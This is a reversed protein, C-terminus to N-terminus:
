GPYLSESVIADLKHGYHLMSVICTLVKKWTVVSAVLGRKWCESILNGVKESGARAIADWLVEFLQYVCRMSETKYNKQINDVRM